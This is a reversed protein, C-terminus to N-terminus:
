NGLLHRCHSADGVVDPGGFSLEGVWEQNSSNSPNLLVGLVDASITGQSFLNDTVTPVLGGASTTDPCSLQACYERRCIYTLYKGDTLGTPGIRNRLDAVGIERCQAM